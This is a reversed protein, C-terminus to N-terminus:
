DHEKDGGVKVGLWAGKSVSWDKEISSNKVGTERKGERNRRSQKKEACTTGNRQETRKGRKEISGEKREEQWRPVCGFTFCPFKITDSAKAANVGATQM